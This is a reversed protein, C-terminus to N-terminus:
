KKIEKKNLMTLVQAIEKKTERINRVDKLQHNSDKFRLDRSKERLEALSRQLEAEGKGKLEKLDM